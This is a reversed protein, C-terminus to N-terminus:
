VWVRDKTDLRILNQQGLSQIMQGLFFPNAGTQKAMLAALSSV